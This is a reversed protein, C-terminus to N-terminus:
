PLTELRVLGFMLNTKRKRENHTKNKKKTKTTAPDTVRSDGRM